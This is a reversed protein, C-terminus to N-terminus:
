NQLTCHSLPLGLTIPGSKVLTEIYAGKGTELNYKHQAFVLGVGGDCTSFKHAIEYIEGTKKRRFEDYLYKCSSRAAGFQSVTDSSILVLLPGGSPMQLVANATILDATFVANELDPRKEVDHVECTMVGANARAGLLFLFCLLGRM